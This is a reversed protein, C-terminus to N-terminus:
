RIAVPQYLVAGFSRESPGARNEFYQGVRPTMYTVEYKGGSAEGMYVAEGLVREQGALEVVFDQGLRGSTTGTPCSHTVTASPSTGSLLHAEAYLMSRMGVVAALTVTWSYGGEADPGSRSVPASIISPFNELASRLETESVNVALDATKSGQYQLYWTGGLTTGSEGMISVVQEVYWDCNIVRVRPLGREADVTSNVALPEIDGM